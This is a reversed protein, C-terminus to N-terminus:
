KDSSKYIMDIHPIDDELYVDSITKFGFSGYFLELYQQAQIKIETENLDQEIITIARKLMEKALGTGRYEKKVIVRGISCEKYKAHKPLIRLYAVVEGNLEKFLHHSVLDYGDVEEYPCNQEVVFVNTREKLINYVELNTLEEFTKLKWEM